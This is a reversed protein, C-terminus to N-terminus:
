GAWSSPRVRVPRGAAECWRLGRPFSSSRELAAGDVLWHCGGASAAWSAYGPPMLLPGPCIGPSKAVRDQSGMGRPQVKSSETPWHGRKTLGRQEILFPRGPAAPRALVRRNDHGGGEVSGLLLQAAASACPARLGGQGQVKRCSTVTLDEGCQDAGKPLCSVCVGGDRRPHAAKKWRM